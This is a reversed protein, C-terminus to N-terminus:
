RQKRLLASWGGGYRRQITGEVFSLALVVAGAAVSSILGATPQDLFWPAVLLAVALPRNALRVGRLFEWIAVFSFTVILAGAIRDLAAAAGDYGLVSPSAYLWLGIVTAVVQAPM